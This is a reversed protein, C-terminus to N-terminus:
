KEVSLINNLVLGQKKLIDFLNNPNVKDIKKYSINYWDYETYIYHYASAVNAIDEKIQSVILKAEDESSVYGVFETWEGEYEFGGTMTIIFM